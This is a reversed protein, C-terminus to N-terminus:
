SFTLYCFGELLSKEFIDKLIEHREGSVDAYRATMHLTYM